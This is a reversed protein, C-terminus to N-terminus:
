MLINLPLDLSKFESAFKRVSAMSSLDLEMVDVKANNNGKLIVEKVASGATMNRVAMIVRAGRLALVRATEVGIGSSAGTVIATLGTADIGHTVEEATNSSSFGSPGLRKSRFLWM